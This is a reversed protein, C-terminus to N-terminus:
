PQAVEKHAECAFRRSSLNVAGRRGLKYVEVTAPLLCAHCSRPTAHESIPRFALTPATPAPLNAM